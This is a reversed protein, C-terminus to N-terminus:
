PVDHSVYCEFHTWKGLSPSYTLLWRQESHFQMTSFAAEADNRLCSRKTVQLFLRVSLYQEIPHPGVTAVASM